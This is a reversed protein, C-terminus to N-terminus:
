HGPQLDLLVKGTVSRDRTAEVAANVDALPVTRGVVIRLRGDALAALAGTLGARRQEDTLRLGGYGLLHIGNRYLQQLQLTATAGASTGFLVYRGGVAMAGLAAATFEGGLPDIAVTPRFDGIAEALDRAGGVVIHAAGQGRVAEAKDPDATQGWVTARLSSALSVTPLGVGGAAGLVLVRDGPAVAALHVVNWATLGAIGMASAARMDARPPLPVVAGAPVVAQEAWVGDRATGLGAGCALVPSGNAYGSAEAGVTRPLPGDPAVRGEIGYRDVPNVGGFMLEVLVEGGM